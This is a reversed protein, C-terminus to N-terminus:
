TDEKTYKNEPLSYVELIFPDLNMVINDKKDFLFFHHASEIWWLKEVFIEEFDSYRNRKFKVKFM